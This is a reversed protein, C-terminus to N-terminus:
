ISGDSGFVGSSAIDIFKLYDEPIGIDIFFAEFQKGFFKGNLYFREMYDKELSYKEPLSCSTLSSVRTLYLGANILGAVGEQKEAFGTICGKGNLEVRGYRSADDIQKLAISFLSNTVRHFLYFDDLCIPFFSDGNLIFVDESSVFPLSKIIAGGTGLPETEIAYSLDMGAFSNGFFSIISEHRYGVSLVVRGIGQNALYDLLYALFPRGNVDAMPKPVDRVVSQLRTGMGGALIIAERM